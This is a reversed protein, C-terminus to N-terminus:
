IGQFYSCTQRLATPLLTANKMEVPPVRVDVLIQENSCRGLALALKALIGRCASVLKLRHDYFNCPEQLAKFGKFPSSTEPAQPGAELTSVFKAALRTMVKVTATYMPDGRTELILGPWDTEYLM